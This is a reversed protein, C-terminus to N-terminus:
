LTPAAIRVTVHTFRSPAVQMRKFVFMNAGCWVILFWYWVPKILLLNQGIIQGSVEGGGCGLLGRLGLGGGEMNAGM